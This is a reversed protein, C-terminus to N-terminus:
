GSPGCTSSPGANATVLLGGTAMLVFMVYMFYFQPTRLMEPTTFHHRGVASVSVAAKAAAPEAKPHRLFQAVVVIVLVYVVTGDM